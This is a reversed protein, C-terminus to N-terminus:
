LPITRAPYRELVQANHTAMIVAIHHERALSHLLGVIYLGSESDLNATPEDALILRPNGLIARAIAVCQQEGGSLESPFKYWKNELGVKSLVEAIREKREKAERYGWARLVVDLNDYATRDQLLQFDQFVIGLERRLAQRRSGKLGCLDYGLVTARGEDIAIEAYMSRLLTSKGSGIAGTLYVFEGSSVELDFGSFIIHEERCIRVGGYSLIIDEHM